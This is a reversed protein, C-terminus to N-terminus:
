SIGRRCSLSAVFLQEDFPVVKDQDYLVIAQVSNDGGTDALKGMGSFDSASITASSKIVSSKGAGYPGTVTFNFVDENNTAIDLAESCTGNKYAQSTPALDVYNSSPAMARRIECLSDKNFRM